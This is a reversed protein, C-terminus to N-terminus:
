FIEIRSVKFVFRTDSKEKSGDLNRYELITYTSGM